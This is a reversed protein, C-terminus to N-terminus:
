HTYYNLFIYANIYEAAPATAPATEVPAAAMPNDAAPKVPAPTAAPDTAAPTWAPIPPATAAPPKNATKCDIAAVPAIAVAAGTTMPTPATAPRPMKAM